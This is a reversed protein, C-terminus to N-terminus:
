RLRQPIDRRANLPRPGDVVEPEYMAWQKGDDVGIGAVFTPRIAFVRMTRVTDTSGVKGRVLSDIQLRSM